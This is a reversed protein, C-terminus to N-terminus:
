NAKTDAATAPSCDADAQTVIQQTQCDAFVILFVEHHFSANQQATNTMLRM